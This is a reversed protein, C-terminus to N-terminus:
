DRRERVAAASGCDAKALDALVVTVDLRCKAEGLVGLSIIGEGRRWVPM